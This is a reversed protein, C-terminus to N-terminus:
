SEDEDEDEAEGFDRASKKEIVRQEIARVIGNEV